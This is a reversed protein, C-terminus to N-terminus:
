GCLEEEIKEEKKKQTHRERKPSVKLKLVWLWAVGV